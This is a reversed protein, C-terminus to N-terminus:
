NKLQKNNSQIIDFQEFEEMSCPIELVADGNDNKIKVLQTLFSESNVYDIAFRPQKLILKKKDNIQIMGLRGLVEARSLEERTLDVPLQYSHDGSKLRIKIGGSLRKKEQRLEINTKISFIAALVASLIGIIDAINSLWTPM